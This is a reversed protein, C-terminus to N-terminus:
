QVLRVGGFSQQGGGPQGVNNFSATSLAYDGCHDGDTLFTTISVAQGPPTPFTFSVTAINSGTQSGSIDSEHGWTWNGKVEFTSNPAGGTGPITLTYDTNAQTQNDYAIAYGSDLGSPYTPNKDGPNNNPPPQPQNPAPAPNWVGKSFYVPAENNVKVYVDYADLAWEDTYTLIFTETGAVSGAVLQSSQIIVPELRGSTSIPPVGVSGYGHSFDVATGPRGFTTFSYALVQGVLGAVQQDGMGPNLEVGGATASQTQYVIGTYQSVTYTNTNPVLGSNGDLHVFNSNELDILLPIGNVQTNGQLGPASLTVSQVEHTSVFGGATSELRFIVGSGSVVTNDGGGAGVGGSGGSQCTGGTGASYAGYGGAGHGIWVGATLTPCGTPTAANCLDFDAASGTRERSHDIGNAGSVTYTTGSNTNVPASGTIDYVGPNFEYTGHNIVIYSYVGPQIVYPETADQCPSTSPSLSSAVTGGNLILAGCSPLGAPPVPNWSPSWIQTAGPAQNGWIKQLSGPPTPNGPICPVPSTTGSSSGCYLKVGSGSTFGYGNIGRVTDDACSLAGTPDCFTTQQQIVIDGNSVVGVPDQGAPLLTNGDIGKILVDGTASTSRAAWYTPCNATSNGALTKDCSLLNRAPALTEDYCQNGSRCDDQKQYLYLSHGPPLAVTSSGPQAFVTASSVNDATPIGFVGQFFHTIHSYITVQFCNFQTSGGCETPIPPFGALQTAPANVVIKTTFGSSANCAPGTVDFWATTFSTSTRVDCGTGYVTPFGNMAAFDHASKVSPDNSLPPATLIAGNVALQKGAALTAFDAANQAERRILYDRSADIALAGVGLIILILVAVIPMVQARQNGLLGPKWWPVRPRSSM